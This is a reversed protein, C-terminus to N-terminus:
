RAQAYLATLRRVDGDSLGSARAIDDRSRLQRRYRSFYEVIDGGYGFFYMIDRFDSTHQLGLAHGLEHLCTLYVITERLLPDVAAREAIEEGLSAMDPRIFVAAGLRGAVVLPRMEGYEGGNPSAWYLRVLADSEIAPEFRLGNAAGGRWADFAWRALERDSPRFGTLKAGEAIFYTIASGAPVRLPVQYSAAARHAVLPLSAAFALAALWHVPRSVRARGRDASAPGAEDRVSM